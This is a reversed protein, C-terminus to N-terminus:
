TWPAHRHNTHAFTDQVQRKHQSGRDVLISEEIVCIVVNKSYHLYKFLPNDVRVLREAEHVHLEFAEVALAMTMRLGLEGPHNLAGSHTKHTVASGRKLCTVQHQHAGIHRMQPDAMCVIDPFRM